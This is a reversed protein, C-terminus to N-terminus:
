RRRQRRGPGGVGRLNGGPLCRRQRFHDIPFRHAKQRSAPAPQRTSMPASYMPGPRPSHGRLVKGIGKAGGTVIVTKGSFDNM